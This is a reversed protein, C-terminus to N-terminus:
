GFLAKVADGYRMMSIVVDNYTGGLHKVAYAEVSTTYVQTVPEGTTSNYLAIVIQERMDAASIAFSTYKYYSSYSEFDDSSIVTTNGGITYRLECGSVDATKFMFMIEVKSGLSISDQLVTVTGTGSKIVEGEITPITSTGLNAYEGLNKNALNDANHNFAKQVEAGYNLMDVLIKCAALNNKGNYEAIKSIALDAVTHTVPESKYQVGDKEAYITLTVTETMSWSLLQKDLVYYVGYDVPNLTESVDGEPTAQVAEVYFSDYGSVTSKLLSSQLGIYETFSLGVSYFKLNADVIPGEPKYALNFSVSGAPATWVDEPNFTNVIIQIEDGATVELEYPNPVPDLSSDQLDGNVGTTLNNVTYQWNGSPMTMVLTGTKEATYVFFYGQTGEAVTASNDGLVATAPNNMSGLPYVFNITYQADETGDNVIAVLIYRDYENGSDVAIAVGDIEYNTGGYIYSGVGGVTMLMGSFKGTYYVTQGAPVTVTNSLDTLVIPNAETGEIVDPEGEWEDNTAAAAPLAISPLYGILLVACLLLAVAKSFLCNRNM